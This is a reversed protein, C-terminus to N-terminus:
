IDIPYDLSQDASVEQTPTFTDDDEYIIAAEDLVDQVAKDEAERKADEASQAATDAAVTEEDAEQSQATVSGSMLLACVIIFRGSNKIFM